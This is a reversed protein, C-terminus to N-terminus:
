DSPLSGAVITVGQANKGGLKNGRLFTLLSFDLM